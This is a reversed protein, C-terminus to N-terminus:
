FRYAANLSYIVPNVDVNGVKSGNIKVDTNIDAYRVDAGVRWQPSLRYDFGLQAAAGVSSSLHLRDGSDLRSDFFYTYNVGVGVYPSFVADPTFHYQLSLIPPLHKTEGVKSGNVKIDHQPPWGVLLDLALNPSIFYAITGTLSFAEDIDVDATNNIIRGPASTPVVDSIAGRLQWQYDAAGASTALLLCLVGGLYGYIFNHRKM